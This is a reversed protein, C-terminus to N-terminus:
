ALDDEMGLKFGGTCGKQFLGDPDYKRSVEKLFRWNDEGYTEFPKQWEACYNLYRWPHGTKNATAAAEIQEMTHRLTTKVLEDDKREDWNVSFSVIVLPENTGDHLGLPNPDGKRVWDPLLPQMILTWVLGAVKAKRLPTIANQYSAHTSTITAIHNKITTTSFIQRRGPPNLFNLEDTANTLTRTRCTSWIRWLSAFPSDKWCTPWEYKKEPPKSYVLNVSVLQCGLKQIYSFCSIPGASHVDYTINSGSERIYDYFVKLIRNTQFSPMYLFGSWIQTCPFTRATFRTVIGFNNSGGKLARWLDFNESASATTVIGSALVIEYEIINSCVLGFRPSFFSLGGIQM